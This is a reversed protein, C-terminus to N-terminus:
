SGAIQSVGTLQALVSIALSRPDRVSPILGFPSALRSTAAADMGMSNLTMVRAEHARRSGQAGIYIAPSALAHLLLPPEWDHDHFFLTVATRADIATVGPWVPAAMHSARVQGTFLSIDPSYAEVLHGAAHALEAFTQAEPGKGFVLVRLRPQLTLSVPGLDLTTPRRAALDRRARALMADDPDPILTVELGGGCPLQLDQWPSGAGYRLRRTEGDELAARAHIAVDREICGSSLNGATAGDEHCVMVAGLPRYSAGIVRTIVAITRRGPRLAAALPFDDECGVVHLCANPMTM